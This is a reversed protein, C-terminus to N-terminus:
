KISLYQDAESFPIFLEKPGEAYAAIEYINYYLNIGKDSFIINQPLVFVDDEFMFGKANIGESEPLDYTKRFKQQAFKAFAVNDKFLENVAISKGTIADFILSRTGSYGHAGGTYVHSEVVINIIKDSQYVVKSNVTGEWGFSDEPFDTRLKKYSDLFADGLAEYTEVEYRQEGFYIIERYVQFIKKNISDSVVGGNKAVIYKLSLEPCNKKCNEPAPKEYSDTEFTMEKQCSATVFLILLCIPIISKM